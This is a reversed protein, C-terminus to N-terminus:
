DSCLYNARSVMRIEVRSLTPLDPKVDLIKQANKEMRLTKLDLFSEDM